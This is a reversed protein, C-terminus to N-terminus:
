VGKAEEDDSTVVVAYGYRFNAAIALISTVTVYLGLLNFEEPTFMRGLFPRIALPILAAVGVGLISIISNKAYDSKPLLNKM